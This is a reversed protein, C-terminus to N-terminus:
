SKRIGLLANVAALDTNKQLLEDLLEALSLNGWNIARRILYPVPSHPETRLLYDAAERLRQYAEARSAVPGRESAVEFPMEVINMSADEQEAPHAAAESSGRERRVRAVFGQMATLPARLSSLSPANADGLRERLVTDLTELASNAAGLECEVATFRAAPTLSVSVMIKQQTITNPGPPAKREHNAVYLASEWDRWGYSVSPEGQPATIPISKLPLVLKESMWLIPAIRPEMDGGDPLPHVVDWFTRCLAAVIEIGREFGSFGFLRMWAETLWGAIQLDKTRTELAATCVRAVGNWDARKLERQWVGQPLTADDEERLHRIEDYLPDFRLWDGAPQKERIPALFHEVEPLDPPLTAPQATM